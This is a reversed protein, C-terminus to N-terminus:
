IEVNGYKVPKTVSSVPQIADNRTKYIEIMGIWGDSSFYAVDNIDLGDIAEDSSYIIDSTEEKYGHICFSKDVFHEISLLEYGLQGAIQNILVNLDQTSKM